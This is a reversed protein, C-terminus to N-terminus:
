HNFLINVIKRKARNFRYRLKSYSIGTLASIELMSYGALFLKFIDKDITSLKNRPNAFIDDLDFSSLYDDKLEETSEKLYGSLKREDSYCINPEIFDNRDQSFRNVYLLVENTGVMKWYQYFDIDKNKFANVALPIANALICYIDDYEVQYLFKFKSFLLGALRKANSQYRSIIEIELDDDHTKKYEFVLDNDSIDRFKQFM